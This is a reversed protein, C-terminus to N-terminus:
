PVELRGGNDEGWCVAEDDAYVACAHYRGLSFGALPRDAIPRTLSNWCRITGDARMACGYDESGNNRVEVATYTGAPIRDFLDAAPEGWCLLRSDDARIGCATNFGLAVDTLPVDLPPEDVEGGRDSGWCAVLGTDRLACADDWGLTVDVFVGEPPDLRGIVGWCSLSGDARIGCGSDDGAEVQVYPGAPPDEFARPDYGGWCVAEGDDRLACAYTDYLSVTVYRGVPPIRVNDTGYGWCRLLGNDRVGCSTDRGATVDLWRSITGEGSDPVGGGQAGFFDAVGDGDADAPASGAVTHDTGAAVEIWDEFGDGDTDRTLDQPDAPLGQPGAPGQLGRPGQPGIDGQPGAPGREGQAGAPGPEGQPGATGAIGQPGQPGAPGADGAPGAAGAPGQPGVPGEPGGLDTWEGFRGDPEAFRLRTGEWEHGPASGTPGEAGEPGPEGQPGVPGAPGAAGQAGAPGAEGQPGRPGQPGEDGAPGRPGVEGQAGSDGQLGRPGQPGEEGAPGRPGIEGQAGAPGAVGAPGAEGQPGAPGPDGPPGQPGAVGQPGEPGVEGQPGIAGFGDTPGVWRGEGDIVAQEGISVAAPHIHRGRVDDAHGARAAWQARLTAGVAMRPEFEDDGEIQVGLWLGTQTPLEPMPTRRGIVATFVGDVVDVAEIREVWEADGGEAATYLRFTMARTGDLPAGALDTVTGQYVLTIPPDQAAAPAALMALAILIPLARRAPM